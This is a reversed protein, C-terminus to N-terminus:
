SAYRPYASRKLPSLFAFGLVKYTFNQNYLKPLYLIFCIQSLVFEADIFIGNGVASGVSDLIEELVVLLKIINNKNLIHLVHDIQRDILLSHM